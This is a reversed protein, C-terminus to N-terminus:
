STSIGIVPGHDNGYPLCTVKMQHAQGQDKLLITQSRASSAVDCRRWTSIIPWSLLPLPLHPLSTRPVWLSGSVNFLDLQLTTSFDDTWEAINYGQFCVMGSKKADGLGVQIIAMRYVRHNTMGHRIMTWRPTDDLKQAFLRNSVECPGM